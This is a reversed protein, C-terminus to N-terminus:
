TSAQPRNKLKLVAHMVCACEPFETHTICNLTFELYGCLEVQRQSVCAAIAVESHQLFISRLLCLYTHLNHQWHRKRQEHELTLM